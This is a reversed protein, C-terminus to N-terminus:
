FYDELSESVRGSMGLKPYREYEAVHLIGKADLEPLMNKVFAGTQEADIFMPDFTIVFKKLQSFNDRQLVESLSSWAIQDLGKLIPDRTDLRIYEVCSSTITALYGTFWDSFDPHNKPHARHFWLSRLHPTLSLDVVDWDTLMCSQAEYLCDYYVGKTKPGLGYFDLHRLSAGLAEFYGPIPNLVRRGDPHGDSGPWYGCRLDLSTLAPKEEAALLWNLLNVSSRTLILSRLSM